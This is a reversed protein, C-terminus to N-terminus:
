CTKNKLFSNLNFDRQCKQKKKKEIKFGSKNKDM